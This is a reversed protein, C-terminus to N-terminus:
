KMMHRFHFAYEYTGMYVIKLHWLSSNLAEARATQPDARGESKKRWQEGSQNDAPTKLDGAV